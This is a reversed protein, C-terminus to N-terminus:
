PHMKLVISSQVSKTEFNKMVFVKIVDYELPFLQKVVSRNVTQGQTILFITLFHVNKM